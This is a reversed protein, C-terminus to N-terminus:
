QLYMANMVVEMKKMIANNSCSYNTVILAFALRKGSVTNVYGAYSKIRRMTGSKAM